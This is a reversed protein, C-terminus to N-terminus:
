SAMCNYRVIVIIIPVGFIITKIIADQMATATYSTSEISKRITIQDEVEAVYAVSNLILDLNNYFYITPIEQYGVRIATDTAFYNNAYVVLRSVNNQNITKELSAGVVQRGIEEGDVPAVSSEAFNTRFFAKDSTTLFETKVVSLNALEEDSAFTIKSSDLFLVTGETALEKTLETDNIIPLILDPSQMVMKTTDQEIMFGNLHLKVGYMDLISQINKLEGKGRQTDSMWLINGGKNIYEKIKNVEVEKFDTDPSAIILAECDEPIKEQVLLDLENIEYNETELYLKFSALMNQVSYEDHGKLIYLKTTKGISSVSLIGNTLKQETLDITNGTNYDYTYLDYSDIIKNKEGSLLLINYGGEEINYKSVLDKRDSSEVIEVKINEKIKTYQKAIDVVSSNEIYDFLYIEIQEDDPIKSIQEKTQETLTYLKEKTLDIDTLNLSNVWVNIGVFIGILIAILLITLGTQRFWKLKFISLIKRM